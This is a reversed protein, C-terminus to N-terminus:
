WDPKSPDTQKSVLRRRQQLYKIESQRMSELLQRAKQSSMKTEKFDRDARMTGSEPKQDKNDKNDKNDENSEATKDTKDQNQEPNPKTDSNQNKNQSDKNEPNQPNNKKNQDSNAEQEKENKDKGTELDQSKESKKQKESPGTKNDKNDQNKNEQNNKNKALLRSLLEYNYRAIENDPNARISQKFYELSQKYIHQKFAICGLQQYALSSNFHNSSHTLQELSKYARSYNELKYYANSLNLLANENQYDLNNTLVAYAAAAEIYNGKKFAQEGRKIWKNSESIQRFSYLVNPFESLFVLVLIIIKM